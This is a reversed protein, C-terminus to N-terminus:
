KSGNYKSRVCNLFFSKIICQFPEKIGPVVNGNSHYIHNGTDFDLLEDGLSLFFLNSKM